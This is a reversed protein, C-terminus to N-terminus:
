SYTSMFTGNHDRIVVGVGMQSTSSFLTADVILVAAGDQRRSWVPVLPPVRERTAPAIFVHQLIMTIYSNIQLALNHQQKLPESNHVENCSNWIHWVTVALSIAERNNARALFDFICVKNNTFDKRCLHVHSTAKVGRWVQYACPFFLM